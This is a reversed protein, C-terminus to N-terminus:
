SVDLRHLHICGTVSLGKGWGRHDCVTITYMSEGDNENREYYSMDGLSRRISFRLLEFDLQRITNLAGSAGVFITTEYGKNRIITDSIADYDLM